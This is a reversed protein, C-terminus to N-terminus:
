YPTSCALAIIFFFIYIAVTFIISAIFGFLSWKGIANSSRPKNDKWMFYVIIGVIPFCCAIINAITDPEDKVIPHGYNYSNNNNMSQQNNPNTANGCEPCFTVNDLIEKGCKSCYM